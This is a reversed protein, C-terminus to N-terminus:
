KVVNTQAADIGYGGATGFEGAGRYIFAVSIRFFSNVFRKEHSLIVCTTQPFCVFGASTASNASASAEPALSPEKM